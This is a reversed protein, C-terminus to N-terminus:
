RIINASGTRVAELPDEYIDHRFDRCLLNDATVSQGVDGNQISDEKPHARLYYKGFKKITVKYYILSSEDPFGEGAATEPM